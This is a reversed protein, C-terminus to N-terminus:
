VAHLSTETNLSLGAQSVAQLKIPSADRSSDEGLIQADTVTANILELGRIEVGAIALLKAGRIAQLGALLIAQDGLAETVMNETVYRLGSNCMSMVTQNLAARDDFDYTARNMAYPETAIAYNVRAQILMRRRTVNRDTLSAEDTILSSMVNYDDLRGNRQRLSVKSYSRIFPFGIQWGRNVIGYM